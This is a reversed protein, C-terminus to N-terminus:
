ATAFMAQEEALLKKFSPRGHIAAVFRALKPWRKADVTVGAYALNVFQSAVAIDAISFAGGVLTDASGLQSELYDFLPPLEQDIAKQVAAEDCKQNMFRPGVVRAFFIKAGIVGVLASDAYEEFWLARAYDFDDAPYMAPKPHKREIYASIVSSDSIAKDGDRMAPIKGLPSIKKFEPDNGFPFVPELEYPVGKEELVVRVKRVFPSVSAGLIKLM